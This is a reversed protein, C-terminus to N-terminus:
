SALLNIRVNHNSHDAVLVFGDRDVALAEPAYLLAESAPGGDGSNGMEGTGAVTTIFGARDIRRVCHNGGDGVYINRARDAALGDPHFLQALVAPGRDGRSGISGIGAVTTIVGARDIKRVRHNGWDSVFLNGDRDTALGSPGDLLAEVTPGGDGRDGQKGTGAVTTIIGDPDIRRVRHEYYGAIYLNGSRDFALSSPGQLSAETAKGGDGSHERQGTGAITTIMGSSDIRRIRYNYLDAVYLNGARDAALGSPSSLQARVAPGGDGDFGREGTGALTHIM